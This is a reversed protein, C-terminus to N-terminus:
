FRFFNWTHPARLLKDLLAHTTMRTIVPSTITNFYDAKLLTSVMTESDRRTSLDSILLRSKSNKLSYVNISQIGVIQWKWLKGRRRTWKEVVNAVVRLNNDNEWTASQMNEWTCFSLTNYLREHFIVSQLNACSLIHLAYHEGWVLQNINQNFTYYNINQNFNVNIQATQCAPATSDIM